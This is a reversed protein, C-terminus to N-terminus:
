RAPHDCYISTSIQTRWRRGGVWPPMALAVNLLQLPNRLGLYADTHTPFHRVQIDDIIPAFPYALFNFLAVTLEDVM